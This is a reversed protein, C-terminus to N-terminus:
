WVPAQLSRQYDTARQAHQARQVPRVLQANV